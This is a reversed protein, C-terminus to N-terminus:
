NYQVSGAKFFYALFCLPIYAIMLGLLGSLYHLVVLLAIPLLWFINICLVALTVTTHKGFYDVAHQYAHSRHAEYVKQKQLLRNILTWTADVIFVGLVILWAFFLPTSVWAAQISLGGIMIGLFGSGADGMFIRAVPFNWFVFGIVTAMLILLICSAFVYGSISYFIAGSFCVTITEVSAIGNIGDMFNYLNLLWVLYFFALMTTLVAPISIGMINLPPFGHMWYLIWLAAFFHLLLRWKAAVCWKDDLFGVIGVTIGAGLFAILFALSIFGAMFLFPLLLLFIVVFAVGGGRPTPVTHSSRQNPIDLLNKALAYHRILYTLLGTGIAAIVFYLLVLGSM